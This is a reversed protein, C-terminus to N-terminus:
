TLVQITIVTGKGIHEIEEPICAIGQARALMQLRSQMRLPHFTVGEDRREFTGQFFQTWGREGRIDDGLVASLAPLGTESRGALVHLGPLALQLFAMQNSPPGGPLCFVPKSRLLGFAAAKGPGMRVRHYWKTWGLADLIRVTLDRESKWAGGSTIICDSHDLVGLVADRIEDERDGVVLNRAEMGYRSCWAAISVLNSAFVKGQEFPKGPAIVEDGTAIVAVRPSRHVMIAAHGAAAIFGIQGPGLVTGKTVIKGGQMIDAGRPLINRGLLANIAVTVASGDDSCFEQSVVADAGLPLVAGTTIKVARGPAVTHRETSGAFLAGDLGLKVPREPSAAAVDSSRVAYGDKLSVDSSPADVLAVIDEAAVRGTLRSLDLREAELATCHKVTLEHAEHFSVTDRSNLSMHATHFCSFSQM